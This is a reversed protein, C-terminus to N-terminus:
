LLVGFSAAAALVIGIAAVVSAGGAIWKSRAVMAISLLVIALQLATEGLEFGEGRRAATEGAERQRAGADQLQGIGHGAADPARLRLAEQHWKARDAPMAGPQAAATKLVTERVIKAQMYAFSDSAAIGQLLSERQAGAAGMHVIALAVAFGGVMLSVRDRFRREREREAREAANSSEEAREIAEDILDKADAPEMM